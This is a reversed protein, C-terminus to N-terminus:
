LALRLKSLVTGISNFTTVPPAVLGPPLDSRIFAPWYGPLPRIPGLGALEDIGALRGASM